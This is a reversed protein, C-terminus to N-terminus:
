FATVLKHLWVPKRGTSLRANAGPTRLLRIAQTMQEWTCITGAAYDKHLEDCDYAPGM